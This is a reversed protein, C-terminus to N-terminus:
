IFDYLNKSKEKCKKELKEKKMGEITDNDKM